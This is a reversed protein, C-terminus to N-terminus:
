QETVQLDTTQNNTIIVVSGEILKEVKELGISYAGFATCLTVFM